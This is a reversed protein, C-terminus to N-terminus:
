KTFAQSKVAVFDLFRYCRQVRESHSLNYCRTRGNFKYNWKWHKPGHM